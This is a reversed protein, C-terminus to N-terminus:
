QSNVVKNMSYLIDDGEPLLNACTGCRPFIIEANEEVMGIVKGCKKCLLQKANYSNM